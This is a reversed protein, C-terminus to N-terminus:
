TKNHNEDLIKKNALRKREKEREKKINSYFNEIKNKTGEIVKVPNVKFKNLNIKKPILSKIKKLKNNKNKENKISNM